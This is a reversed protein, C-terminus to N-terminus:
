ERGSYNRVWQRRTIQIGHQSEFDKRMFWNCLFLFRVQADTFSVQANSLRKFVWRLELKARSKSEHRTHTFVFAEVLAKKDVCVESFKCLFWQMKRGALPPPSVFTNTVGLESKQQLKLPSNLARLWMLLADDWEGNWSFAVNEKCWKEPSMFSSTWGTRNGSGYGSNSTEPGVNRKSTGAPSLSTSPMNMQLPNETFYCDLSSM